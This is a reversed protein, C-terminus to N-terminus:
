RVQNICHKIIERAKDHDNSHWTAAPYDSQNIFSWCLAIVIPHCSSKSPIQLDFDELCNFPDKKKEEGNPASIEQSPGFTILNEEM